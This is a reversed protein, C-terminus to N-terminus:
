AGGLPISGRDFTKSVRTNGSCWTPISSELGSEFRRVGPYMGPLEVASSVITWYQTRPEFGHERGQSPLTKGSSWRLMFAFSDAVYRGIHRPEV